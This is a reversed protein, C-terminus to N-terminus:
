TVGIFKTWCNRIVSKVTFCLNARAKASIPRVVCRVRAPYIIHTPYYLVGLSRQYIKGLCATIYFGKTMFPCTRNSLKLVNLTGLQQQRLIPCTCYCSDIPTHCVHITRYGKKGLRPGSLFGQLSQSALTGIGNVTLLFLYSTPNDSPSISFRPQRGKM